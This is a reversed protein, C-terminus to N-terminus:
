ARSCKPCRCGMPKIIRDFYDKGYNYVLEEGAKIAKIAYIFVRGQVVRPECNPRCSHNIFRAKNYPVNGLITYRSNVAFLYKGGVTDAVKTTVKEGIYEIVKQGKRIDHAAYLGIGASSRKSFTHNTPLLSRLM